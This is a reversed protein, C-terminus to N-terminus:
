RIGRFVMMLVLASIFGVVFALGRDSGLAGEFFPLAEQAV